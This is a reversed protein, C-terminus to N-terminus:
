NSFDCLISRSKTIEIINQFEAYILVSVTKVLAKGFKIEVRLNGQHILNMHGGDCMDPTLDFAYLTYGQGFEERSIHIGKDQGLKETGQFLSTYCRITNGSAFNPEIPKHPVPHGDVYVSMFNVDYHKFDFPNSKYTGNFADNDICGVVVRKPMQGLFVNDQVFSM